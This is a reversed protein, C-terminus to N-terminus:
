YEHQPSFMGMHPHTMPQWFQPYPAPQYYQPPTADFQAPVANPTVKKNARSEVMQAAQCALTARTHDCERSRTMFESLHDSWGANGAGAQWLNPDSPEEVNFHNVMRLARKLTRQLSLLRLQRELRMLGVLFKDVHIMGHVRFRDAFKEMGLSHILAEISEMGEGYGKEMVFELLSRLNGVANLTYSTRSEEMSENYEVWGLSPTWHTGGVHLAEAYHLIEAAHSPQEPQKENVTSCDVGCRLLLDPPVDAGVALYKYVADIQSLTREFQSSSVPNRVSGKMGHYESEVPKRKERVAELASILQRFRVDDSQVGQASLNYLQHVIESYTAM